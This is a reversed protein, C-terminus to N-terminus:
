ASKKQLQRLQKKKMRKLKAASIKQVVEAKRENELKRQKREENEKKLREKELLKEQEKERVLQQVIKQKKLVQQRADFGVRSANNKVLTRKPKQLPKWPRGSVNNGRVTTATM